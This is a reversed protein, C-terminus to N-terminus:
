NEWKIRGWLGGGLAFIIFYSSSSVVHCPGRDRTDHSAGRLRLKGGRRGYFLLSHLLFRTVSVNFIEWLLDQPESFIGRSSTRDGGYNRWCAACYIVSRRYRALHGYTQSNNFVSCTDPPRGDSRGVTRVHRFLHQRPTPPAVWALESTSGTENITTYVHGIQKFLLSKIVNYFTSPPWTSNIKDRRSEEAAGPRM